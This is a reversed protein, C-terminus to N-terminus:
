WVGNGKRRPCVAPPVSPPFYGKGNGSRTWLFMESLGIFKEGLQQSFACSSGQFIAFDCLPLFRPDETVAKLLANYYSSNKNYYAM